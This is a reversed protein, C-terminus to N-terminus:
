AGSMARTDSPVVGPSTCESSDNAASTRAAPAVQSSTGTRIPAERENRRWIATVSMTSAIARM